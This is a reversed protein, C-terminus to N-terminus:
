LPEIVFEDYLDDGSIVNNFFEPAESIYNLIQLYGDKFVNELRELTTRSAYFDNFTM